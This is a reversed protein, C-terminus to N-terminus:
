RGATDRFVGSQFPPPPAALGSLHRPGDGEGRSRPLELTSSLETLNLKTRPDREARVSTGSTVNRTIAVYPWSNGFLLRCRRLRRTTRLHVLSEIAINDKLRIEESLNYFINKL